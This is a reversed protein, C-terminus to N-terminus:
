SIDGLVFATYSVPTPSNTPNLLFSVRHNTLFLDSFAEHFFPWKLQNTLTLYSKLFCHDLLYVMWSHGWHCISFMEAGKGQSELIFELCKSSIRGSITLKKSCSCHYKSIGVSFGIFISHFSKNIVQM